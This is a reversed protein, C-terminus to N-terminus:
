LPPPPRDVEAALRKPALMRYSETVLEAVEDWDTGEDLLMGVDERGWDARFYPHGAAGLAM